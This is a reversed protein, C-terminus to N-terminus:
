LNPCLFHIIKERHGRDTVKLHSAGPTVGTPFSRLPQPRAKCMLMIPLCGDRAINDRDNKHQLPLAPYYYCLNFPECLWIIWGKVYDALGQVLENVYSSGASAHNPSLPKPGFSRSLSLPLRAHSSLAGLTLLGTLLTSAATHQQTISGSTSHSESHFCHWAVSSAVCWLSKMLSTDFLKCNHKCVKVLM